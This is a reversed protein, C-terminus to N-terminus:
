HNLLFEASTILAWTLQRVGAEPRESRADLYAIARAREVEDPMRGLIELFVNEVRKATTPLEVLRATLNHGNPRLL